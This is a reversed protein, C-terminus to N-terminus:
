EVGLAVRMSRYGETPRPGRGRRRGIQPAGDVLTRWSEDLWPDIEVARSAAAVAARADGLRLELHALSSAAEAARVRYRERAGTVWEAPGDEPLM